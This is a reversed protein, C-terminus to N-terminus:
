FKTILCEIYYHFFFAMGLFEHSTKEMVRCVSETAQLYDTILKLVSGSRIKGLKKKTKVAHVPYIERCLDIEEDFEIDRT